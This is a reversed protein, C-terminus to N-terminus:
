TPSVSGGSGTVINIGGAPNGSMTAAVTSRTTQGKKTANATFNIPGGTYISNDIRFTVTGQKKNIWFKVGPIPTQTTLVGISRVGLAKKFADLSIRTQVLAASAYGSVGIVGAMVALACVSKGLRNM